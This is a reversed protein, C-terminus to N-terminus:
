KRKGVPQTDCVTLPLTGALRMAFGELELEPESLKFFVQADSGPDGVLSADHGGEPQLTASGAFRSGTLRYSVVEHTRPNVELELLADSLLTKRRRQKCSLPASSLTVRFAGDEVSFLASAVPFSQEALTWATGPIPESVYADGCDHAQVEGRVAIDLKEGRFASTVELELDFSGHGTRPDWRLATAPLPQSTIGPTVQISLPGAAGTIQTITRQSSGSPSLLDAIDFALYAPEGRLTQSTRTLADCTHPQDWLELRVHSGQRVFLASQVDVREGSLELVLEPQPQTIPEAWVPSALFLSLLILLLARM